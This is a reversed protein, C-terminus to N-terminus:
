ESRPNHPHVQVASASTGPSDSSIPLGPSFQVNGPGGRWQQEFPTSDEPQQPYTLVISGSASSLGSQPSRSLHQYERVRCPSNLICSGSSLSHQPSHSLRHSHQQEGWSTPPPQPPAGRQGATNLSISPRLTARGSGAATKPMAGSSVLLSSCGDSDSRSRTRPIVVGATKLTSTIQNLKDSAEFHQRGGKQYSEGLHDKGRKSCAIIDNILEMINAGQEVSV